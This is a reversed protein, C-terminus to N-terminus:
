KRSNISDSLEKWEVIVQEAHKILYEIWKQEAHTRKEQKFRGQTESLSHKAQQVIEQANTSIALSLLIVFNILYLRM